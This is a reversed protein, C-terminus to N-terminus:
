FQRNTKNCAFLAKLKKMRIQHQTSFSAKSLFHENIAVGEYDFLIPILFKWNRMDDPNAQAHQARQIEVNIETLSGNIAMWVAHKRVSRGEAHAARGLLDPHYSSKFNEWVVETQSYHESCGQMFRLYGRPLVGQIRCFHALSKSWEKM